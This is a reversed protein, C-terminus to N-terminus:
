ETETKEETTTDVEKKKTDTANSQAEQLEKSLADIKGGLDEMKQAKEDGTMTSTDTELFAKYKMYALLLLQNDGSRQADDIAKEFSLRGLDIWYDFYVADTQLTLMKLINEKQSSNLGESIVYSRALIYKTEYPLKEVEIDSLENQVATYDNNLYANSGRMLQEEFPLRIFNLYGAFAASGVMFAAIIPLSIRYFKFRGKDVIIKKQLADEAESQFRNLISDAIAEVSGNECIEKLNNNKGYLDAGGNYYDEFTHKPALVSAILAKYQTLFDTEEVSGIDRKLVKPMLNIDTYINEPSLKFSFESSLKLLQACNFLVRYKDQMSLDKTDSCAKLGAVDFEIEFDDTNETVTCPVLYPSSFMLVDRKGKPLASENNQMTIKITDDM